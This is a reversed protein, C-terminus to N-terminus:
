QDDSDSGEERHKLKEVVRLRSGSLLSAGARRSLARAFFETARSLDKVALNIFTQMAITLEEDRRVTM